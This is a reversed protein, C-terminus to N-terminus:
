SSKPHPPVRPQGTFGAPHGKGFTHSEQQLDCGTVIFGQTFRSRKGPVRLGNQLIRSYKKDLL